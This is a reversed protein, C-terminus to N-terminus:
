GPWDKGGGRWRGQGAREGEGGGVRALEKEELPEPKRGLHRAVVAVRVEM